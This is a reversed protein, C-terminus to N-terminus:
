KEDENRILKYSKNNVKLKWILIGKEDITFDCSLIDNSKGFVEEAITSKLNISCQDFM